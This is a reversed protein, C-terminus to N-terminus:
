TQKPVECQLSGLEGEKSVRLQAVVGRLTQTAQCVGELGCQHYGIDWVGQFCAVFVPTWAVATGM